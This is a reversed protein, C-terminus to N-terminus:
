GARRKFLGKRSPEEDYAYYGYHKGYSFPAKAPDFDNLVVGGATIGIQALLEQARKLEEVNTKEARVVLMVDDVSHALHIADTIPNLPPADFIVFDYNRNEHIIFSQMKESSLILSPNLLKGGCTVVDVGKIRTPQIIEYIQKIELLYDSLGPTMPLKFFKHLVPRRLDTDVLLVNKGLNALTVSVNVATASKGAGPGASTILLTKMNKGMFDYALNVGLRLYSEYVQSNQNKTTVIGTEGNDDRGKALLKKQAQTGGNSEELSLRPITSLLKFGLREIDQPTYIKNHIFNMMFALLLGISLGTLSGLLLNFRIDPSVPEFPVAAKDLIEVQGFKSLESLKAEEYKYGIDMSLKETFERDRQLKALTISQKPLRNLKASYKSLNDYLLNKSVELSAVKLKLRQIEGSLSSIENEDPRGSNDTISYSSMSNQIYDKTRQELVRKLSDVTRMNKKLEASYEPRMNQGSGVVKAIDTEAEKRAITKQLEKIYADDMNVLRKTMSPGLRTLEKQYNDLTLKAKQYEIENSELESELQAVKGSLISADTTPEPNGSSQMYTQLLSDNQSLQRSKLKSQEELFRRLQSAESRSRQLDRDHYTDVYLNAIIASEVPNNSKIALKIISTEKSVDLWMSNKLEKVIAEQLMDQQSILYGGTLKANKIINLTDKKAATDIFTREILKKSVLLMLDRSKLIEQQNQLNNLKQEPTRFGLKEDAGADKVIVSASSEYVKKQTFTYIAAISLIVLFSIIITWKQRILIELVHTFHIPEENPTNYRNRM